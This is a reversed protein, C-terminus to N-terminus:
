GVDIGLNGLVGPAAAALIKMQTEQENRHYSEWPSDMYRYDQVHVKERKDNDDTRLIRGAAQAHQAADDAVGLMHM